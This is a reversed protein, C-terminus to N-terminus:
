LKMIKEKNVSNESVINNFMMAFSNAIQQNKSGSLCFSISCVKPNRFLKNPNNYFQIIYEKELEEIILRHNNEYEGYDESMWVFKNDVFMKNYSNDNFKIEEFLSKFYPYLQNNEEIIFKNNDYYNDMVFYFDLGGYLMKMEDGNNERLIIITKENENIKIIDM